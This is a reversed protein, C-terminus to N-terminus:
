SGALALDIEMEAASKRWSKWAMRKRLYAQAPLRGLGDRRRLTPAWRRTQSRILAIRRRAQAEPFAGAGAPSAACLARRCGYSLTVCSLTVGCWGLSWARDRCARRVARARSAPRGPRRGAPAGSRTPPSPPPGSRCRPPPALDPTRDKNLTQRPGPTKVPKRLPVLIRGLGRVRRRPPRERDDQDPPSSAASRRRESTRRGQSTASGRAPHGAWVTM